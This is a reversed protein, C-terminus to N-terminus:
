WTLISPKTYSQLIETALASSISCDKVLGDIDLGSIVCPDPYDAAVTNVWNYRLIRTAAACPELLVFHVSEHCWTRRWPKWNLCDNRHNQMLMIVDHYLPLMKQTIPGKHPSNVPWQYMGKVFTLPAPKSTKKQDACVTSYVIWVGTIQSAMTSMMFDTYHSRPLEM